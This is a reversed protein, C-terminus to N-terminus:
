SLNSARMTSNRMMSEQKSYTTVATELERLDAPVAECARLNVPNMLLREVARIAGSPAITPQTTSKGSETDATGSPLCSPTDNSLHSFLRTNSQSEPIVADPTGMEATVSSPAPMQLMNGASGIRQLQEEITGIRSEAAQALAYLNQLLLHFDSEVFDPSNTVQTSSDTDRTSSTKQSASGFVIAGKSIVM